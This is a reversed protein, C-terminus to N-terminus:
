FNNGLGSLVIEAYFHNTQCLLSRSDAERVAVLFIANEWLFNARLDNDLTNFEYLTM